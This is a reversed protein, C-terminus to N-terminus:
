AANVRNARAQCAPYHTEHTFHRSFEALKMHIVTKRDFLGLRRAGKMDEPHALNYIEPIITNSLFKLRQEPM